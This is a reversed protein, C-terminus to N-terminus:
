RLLAKRGTYKEILTSIENILPRVSADQLAESSWLQVSHLGKGAFLVFALVAEDPKGRSSQTMRRDFGAGAILDWLSQAERASLRFPGFRTVGGLLNYEITLNGNADTHIRWDGFGQDHQAGGSSFAFYREM